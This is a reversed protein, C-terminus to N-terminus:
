SGGKAIQKLLGEVRASNEAGSDVLFRLNPVRKIKLNQAIENRFFGTANTMIDAGATIYVRASSLDPATEVRLINVDAMDDRKRVALAIVRLIDANTRAIFSAKFSNKSNM